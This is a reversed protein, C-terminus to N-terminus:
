KKNKKEDNKKKAPKQTAKKFRLGSSVTAGLLYIIHCVTFTKIVKACEPSRDGRPLRFM